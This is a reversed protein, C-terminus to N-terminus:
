RTERRDGIRAEAKPTAISARAGRVAVGPSVPVALAGRTAKM